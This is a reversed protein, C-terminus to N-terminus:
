NRSDMNHFYSFWSRMFERVRVDVMAHACESTCVSFLYIHFSFYILGQIKHFLLVKSKALIVPFLVMLIPIKYVLGLYWLFLLFHSELSCKSCSVVTVSILKPSM